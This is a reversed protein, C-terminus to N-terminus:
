YIYVFPIALFRLNSIKLLYILLLKANSSGGHFFFASFVQGIFINGAANLSETPSTGLCWALFRAIYKIIFQMVGWYYLVSVASSFFIIVTLVQFYVLDLHCM